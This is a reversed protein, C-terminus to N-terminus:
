GRSRPGPRQNINDTIRDPPVTGANSAAVTYAASETASEPSWGSYGANGPLAAGLTVGTSNSATANASLTCATASQVSLITAGAPVGTGTVTRGVDESSFTGAPAGTCTAAGSTKTLASVTRPETSRGAVM